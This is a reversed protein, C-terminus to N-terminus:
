NSHLKQKFLYPLIKSIYEQILWSSSMVAINVRYKAVGVFHNTEPWRLQGMIHINQFGGFSIIIIIFTNTTHAFASDHSASFIPYPCGWAVDYCELYVHMRFGNVIIIINYMYIIIMLKIHLQEMRSTNGNKYHIIRIHLMRAM